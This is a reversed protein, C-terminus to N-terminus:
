YKRPLYCPLMVAIYPVLEAWLRCFERYGFIRIQEGEPNTLEQSATCYDDYVFRKTVNSPLLMVKYDQHKLLRGAAAHCACRCLKQHIHNSKSQRCVCCCEQDKSKMEMYM